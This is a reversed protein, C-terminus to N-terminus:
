GAMPSPAWGSATTRPWTRRSSHHPTISSTARSAVIAMPQADSIPVAIMDNKVPVSLRIGIGIGIGYRQAVREAEIEQM